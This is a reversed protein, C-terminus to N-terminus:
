PKALAIDLSRVQEMLAQLAKSRHSLANKESASMESLTQTSGEPIFIPDYGFGGQGRPAELLTGELAGTAHLLIGEMVLVVTCVFRAQRSTSPGLAALEKLLLEVNAQDQAVGARPPAYRHSKVGPRGELALVEIGSDDALSPFHSGQNALRAKATANELYTSYKEAYELGQPNRIVKSAPILEIQPYDALLASFEEYKGRNLSALVIQNSLRM